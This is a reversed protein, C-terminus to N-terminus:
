LIYVEDSCISKGQTHGYKREVVEVLPRELFTSGQDLKQVSTLLDTVCLVSTFCLASDSTHCCGQIAEMMRTFLVLIM